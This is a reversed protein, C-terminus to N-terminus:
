REQPLCITSNEVYFKIGPEPFDTYELYESYVSKGNGDGCTLAATMDNNVFLQWVQFEEAQVFADMQLTAIKDILWYAGGGAHEAVYAVGETYLVSRCLPHRTLQDCGTFHALMGFDFPKASM